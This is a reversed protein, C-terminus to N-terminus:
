TWTTQWQMFEVGAIAGAYMGLALFIGSLMRRQFIKSMKTTCCIFASIFQAIAYIVTSLIQFHDNSWVQFLLAWQVAIGTRCRYLSLRYRETVGLCDISNRSDGM